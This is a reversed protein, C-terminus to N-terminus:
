IVKNLSISTPRAHAPKRFAANAGYGVVPRNKRSVEEGVTKVIGETVAKLRLIVRAHDRLSERFEDTIKKLAKRAPSDEPGLQKENVRVKNLTDRYEAMLRHKDGHLRQAEDTQHDKLYQTERDILDKLQRTLSALKAGHGNLASMTQTQDIGANGSTQSTQMM